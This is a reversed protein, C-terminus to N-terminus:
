DLVIEFNIKCLDKMRCIVVVCYTGELKFYYLSRYANQVEVNVLDFVLDFKVSCLKEDKDFISVGDSDIIPDYPTHFLFCCFEGCGRVQDEIEYGKEKRVIKRTHEYGNKSIMTGSFSDASFNVNARSTWNFIMFNSYSNMQEVGQVIVTNHAATKALKKGVESAYSRCERFM